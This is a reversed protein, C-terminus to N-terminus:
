GPSPLCAPALCAPLAPLSLCCVCPVVDTAGNLETRDCMPINVGIAFPDGNARPLYEPLDYFDTGSDRHWKQYTSGPSPGNCYFVTLAPEEGQWLKDLFRMVLENEVVQPDAFPAVFPLNMHYRSNGVMLGNGELIHGRHGGGGGDDKNTAVELTAGAEAEPPIDVQMELGSETVVTVSEGGIDVGAPVVFREATARDRERINACLVQQAAYMDDLLQPDVAAELVAYGESRFFDLKQDLYAEMEASVRM